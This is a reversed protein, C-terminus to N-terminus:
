KAVTHPTRTTMPNGSAPETTDLEYRDIVQKVAARINLTNSDVAHHRDYNSAIWVRFSNANIGAMDAFEGYTLGARLAFARARRIMETDNPLGLSQLHKRRIAALPM